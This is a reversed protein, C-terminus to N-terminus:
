WERKPPPTPGATVQVKVGGGSAPPKPKVIKPIRQGEAFGRDRSCVVIEDGRQGCNRIADVVVGHLTDLPTAPPTAEPATALALLWLSATM